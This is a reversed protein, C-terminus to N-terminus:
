NEPKMVFVQPVLLDGHLSKYTLLASTVKEWGYATRRSDFKFGMEELEARNTSYQGHSRINSVIIGLKMNWLDEPWDRTKPIVFVQPVLLDAYLSKYTLLASTVKEWGYATRRSDFNFGMEELEARNTSYQGHSRINSVVIGLKMNWLDEPWERSKPIIFAYPVLLDGYLSKHTLLAHKVTKWGYATRRSDFNFGMEELEARNTSYQGNNRINSVVRGLKMDWLDELWDGGKPIVFRKPVLLNGYLSKYTLLARKVTEWGYAARQSDFNFGMEELETRNTSYQGNNRINSVVRGLKMDWLDEPWERGKPIVFLKPVLLNGHLSKYALLARKATEWGSATRQSDFNFGMEELEARYSSYTGNHRINVVTAGLKMDWLDEPWDSGSPIVFNSPVNLNNHLIRYTLLASKLRQWRMRMGSRMSSTSMVAITPVVHCSNGLRFGLIAGMCGIMVLGGSKLMNRADDHMHHDRQATKGGVNGRLIERNLTVREDSAMPDRGFRADLKPHGVAGFVHPLLRPHATPTAQSLMSANLVGPRLTMGAVFVAAMCLVIAVPEIWARAHSVNWMRRETQCAMLLIHQVQCSFRWFVDVCVVIRHSAEAHDMFEIM